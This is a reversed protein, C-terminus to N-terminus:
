FGYRWVAYADSGIMQMPFKLATELMAERDLTSLLDTSVGVLLALREELNRHYDFAQQLANEDRRRDTIDRFVLIVGVIKGDSDRIPAGSDDIPIERGDKSLLVTHNALGVISGLRMVKTVPTEVIRRTTENVINFVETLQKGIAEAQQWGTLSEAVPNMFTVCGQADTAIVADGISALTVQLYERQKNADRYLRANDVALAARNALEQAFELDGENFHYASETSTLSLVGLTRGRATLPVSISSTFGLDRAIQLLESDQIAAVLMEDPIDPLFVPQGTRIIQYTSNPANPDPPYRRQLEYAWQVKAPDKHAVALRHIAGDEGLMDVACWDALTPVALRALDALTTEYDLSAGLVASARVLFDLHREAIDASGTLEETKKYLDIRVALKSRLQKPSLPKLLFDVDDAVYNEYDGLNELTILFIIPAQRTREHSRLLQAAEFGVNGQVDVLIVAVDQDALQRSAEEPSSALILKANLDGLVTQFTSSDDLASRVLLVNVTSM